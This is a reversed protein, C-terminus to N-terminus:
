NLFVSHEGIFICVLIKPLQLLMLYLLTNYIRIHIINSSVESLSDSWVKFQILLYGPLSCSFCLFIANSIVKSSQWILVEMMWNFNFTQLPLSVRNQQADIILNVSHTRLFIVPSWRGCCNTTLWCGKSVEKSLKKSIEKAWSKVKSVKSIVNRDESMFMLLSKTLLTSFISTMWCQMKWSSFLSSYRSAKLANSQFWLPFIDKLLRCTISFHRSLINWM